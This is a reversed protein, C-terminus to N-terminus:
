VNRNLYIDFEIGWSLSPTVQFSHLDPAQHSKQSNGIEWEAHFEFSPISSCPISCMEDMLLINDCHLINDGVKERNWKQRCCEHCLNQKDFVFWSSQNSLLFVGAYWFNIEWITIPCLVFFIFVKYVQTAMLISKPISVSHTKNAVLGPLNGRSPIAPATYCNFVQNHICALEKGSSFAISLIKQFGCLCWSQHVTLGTWVVVEIFRGSRLVVLAPESWTFQWLITVTYPSRRDLAVLCWKKLREFSFFRDLVAM